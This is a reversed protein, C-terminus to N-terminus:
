NYWETACLEWRNTVPFHMWLFSCCFIKNKIWFVNKTTSINFKLVMESVTKGQVQSNDVSIPNESSGLVMKTVAVDSFKVVGSLPGKNMNDDLKM